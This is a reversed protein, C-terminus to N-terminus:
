ENHEQGDAILYLRVASLLAQVGDVKCSDSLNKKIPKRNGMRVDEDLLCNGFMWPWLPSRSFHIMPPDSKVMYTLTKVPANYNSYTQSVPVVTKQPDAGLSWCWAKLDNVAQGANYSDYGFGSFGVGCEHLEAIKNVPLSPLIVGGPSVGLWGQEHWSRLLAGISSREMAEESVYPSMDAFFEGTGLNVSLYSVVHIDDGQSFDFGAFTVWGESSQCDAITRDVQLHRIQDETLWDKVKSSHYRNFLKSVCEATKERENRVKVIWEDYFSHQVIIGLMPCCKKRISRKTFLTEVDAEYEDPELCLAMMRDAPDVTGPEAKRGLESLMTNHISGLKERFPGSGINGATTTTFTLPERRPGMSSEIVSVLNLMDSKGNAYSASGYEDPCCLQAFMGDKTKGGASLPCLKSDRFKKMAPKWDCVTETLRLREGDPDLQSLLARTRRYLLMSQDRSNSACYIESNYDECFFFWAQIYASLGTKDNKRAAYFTFDTCLRRYDLIRGGEVKETPLLDRDGELLGTDVWGHPGFTAALVFVQFPQWRYYQRGSIGPCLLGDRVHRWIGRSDKEWLGERKYIVKRVKAVDFDYTDMLRLLRVAGLIEFLNHHDEAAPDASSHSLLDDYYWLLRGDVEGLRLRLDGTLRDRLLAIAEGKLKISEEVNM